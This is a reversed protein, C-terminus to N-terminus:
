EDWDTSFAICTTRLIGESDITISECKVKNKDVYDYSKILEDFDSLM